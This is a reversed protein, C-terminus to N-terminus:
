RHRNPLQEGLPFLSFEALTTLVNELIFVQWFGEADLDNMDPAVDQTVPPVHVMTVAKGVTMSRVLPPLPDEPRDGSLLPPECQGFSPPRGGSLAPVIQHRGRCLVRKVEDLKGESNRIGDHTFYVLILPLVIPEHIGILRDVFQVSPESLVPDAIFVVRSFDDPNIGPVNM